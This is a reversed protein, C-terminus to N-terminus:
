LKRKGQFNHLTKIENNKGIVSLNLKGNRCFFVNIKNMLNLAILGDPM